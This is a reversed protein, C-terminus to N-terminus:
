RSPMPAILALVTLATLILAIAAFVALPARRNALVLPTLLHQRLQSGSV